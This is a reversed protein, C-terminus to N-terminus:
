KSVDQIISFSHYQGLIKTVEIIMLQVYRIKFNLFNQCLTLLSMSRKDPVKYPQAYKYLSKWDSTDDSILM